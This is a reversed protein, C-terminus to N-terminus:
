SVFNINIIVEMFDTKEIYIINNFTVEHFGSDTQNPFNPVKVNIAGKQPFNDIKIKLPELVVM